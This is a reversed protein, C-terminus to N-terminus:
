DLVTPHKASKVSAGAAEDQKAMKDAEEQKVWKEAGAAKAAQVKALAREDDM